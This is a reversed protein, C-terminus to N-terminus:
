RFRWELDYDKPNQNNLFYFQYWVDCQSTTVGSITVNYPEHIYRVTEYNEIPNIISRLVDEQYDMFNEEWGANTRFDTEPNFILSKDTNTYLIKM